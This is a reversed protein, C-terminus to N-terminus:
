SQLGEFGQIAVACTNHINFTRHLRTLKFQESVTHSLECLQVQAKLDKLYNLFSLLAGLGISDIFQVGTLDLVVKRWHQTLAKAAELFVPANIANLKAVRLELVLVDNSEIRHNLKM